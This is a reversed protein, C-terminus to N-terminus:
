FAFKKLQKKINCDLGTIYSKNGIVKELNIKKGDFYKNISNIINVADRISRDYIEYFTENSKINSDQPNYWIDKNINLYYDHKKNNEHYSIAKFRFFRRPIILDIISFLFKKIGFRDYRYRRIFRKMHKLSKYYYKSMNKINYTEYYVEDIINNLENSFKNTDFCFKDIRFSYPNKCGNKKIIDLDIYNEMYTHLQNYKYTTRDKPDFMGTKYVVYPHINSDLVYHCIFGYLFSLVESNNHLKKQKIIKCLNILFDGCKNTHFYYQLDRIKKGTILYEVNYFKLPDTNQGFMKLRSLDSNKLKKDEKKLSEYVDKAFYAHTATSPMIDGGLFIIVYFNM